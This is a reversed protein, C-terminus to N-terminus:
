WVGILLLTLQFDFNFFYRSSVITQLNEKKDVFQNGFTQIVVIKM